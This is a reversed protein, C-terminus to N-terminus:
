WKRRKPECDLLIQEYYILTGHVCIQWNVEYDVVLYISKDM